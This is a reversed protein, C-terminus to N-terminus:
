LLVALWVCTKQSTESKAHRAMRLMVEETVEQISRAMDMERQTLRGEPSRPPGNFLGAFRDNTM